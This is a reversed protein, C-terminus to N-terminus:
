ARWVSRGVLGLAVTVAMAVPVRMRRLRDTEERFQSYLCGTWDCGLSWAHRHDTKCNIALEPPAGKDSYPPM